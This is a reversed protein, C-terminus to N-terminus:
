PPVVVLVSVIVGADPPMFPSRKRSTAVLAAPEVVLSSTASSAASAAPRSAGEIRKLGLLAEAAKPRLADNAAPAFPIGAGVRCHCRCGAPVVPKTARVSM